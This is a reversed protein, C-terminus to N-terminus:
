LLAAAVLATTEALECTAGLIDGTVGGLRRRSSLGTLATVLAVAGLVQVLRPLLVSPLMPFLVGAAVVTAGLLHPRAALSVLEAATGGGPRAYPHAVTQAVMALRALVPAAGLWALGGSACLVGAAATKTVLLGVLAVVGFSGIHPDKMIELTRQPTWGGGFGDAMDALGDLHLGRTLGAWLGVVLVGTLLAGLPGAAATGPRLLGSALAWAALGLFAGVVPFWVLSAPGPRGEPAPIPLVTLTRFAGSLAKM